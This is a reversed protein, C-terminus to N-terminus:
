LLTRYVPETNTEDVAAGMLFESLRSLAPKKIRTPVTRGPRSLSRTTQRGADDPFQLDVQRSANGRQSNASPEEKNKM